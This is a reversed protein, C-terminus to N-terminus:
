LWTMASRDPVEPPTWPQRLGAIGSAVVIAPTKRDIRTLEMLTTIAKEFNNLKILVLAMHLRGARALETREKFGM